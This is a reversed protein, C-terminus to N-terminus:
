FKEWIDCNEQLRRICPEAYAGMNRYLASGNDNTSVWLQWGLTRGIMGRRYQEYGTMRRDIINFLYKMRAETVTEAGLDDLILLDVAYISNMWRSINKANESLACLLDMTPWYQVSRDKLALRGFHQLIRTKCLATKGAIWLCSNRHYEVFRFLEPNANRNDTDYDLHYRDLGSKKWRAQYNEELEAAKRAEKQKQKEAEAEEKMKTKCMPCYAYQKSIELMEPDNVLVQECYEIFKEGCRCCIMEIPLQM